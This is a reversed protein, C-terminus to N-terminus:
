QLEKVIIELKTLWQKCDQIEQLSDFSLHVTKNKYPIMLTYPPYEYWLYVGEDIKILDPM